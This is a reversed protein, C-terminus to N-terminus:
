FCSLARLSGPEITKGNDHRLSVQPSPLIRIGPGVGPTRSQSLGVEWKVSSSLPAWLSPAMQKTDCPLATVPAWSEQSGPCHEAWWVMTGEWVRISGLRSVLPAM